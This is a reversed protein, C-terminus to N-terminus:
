CNLLMSDMGFDLGPARGQFIREFGLSSYLKLAPLNDSQVDLRFRRFGAAGGEAIIKKVLQRGLGHGRQSEDVTITRIYYDAKEVPATLGAMKQLNLSLEGRREPSAGKILSLLDARRRSAVEPGPVGIAVGVPQLDVLAITSLLASFESDKRCVWHHLCHIANEKGGFLVIFFDYGSQMIWRATLAAYTGVEEHDRLRSFTLTM